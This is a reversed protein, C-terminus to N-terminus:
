SRIAYLRETQLYSIKDSMKGNERNDVSTDLNGSPAYQVFM